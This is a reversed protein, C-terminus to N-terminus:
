TVKCQLCKKARKSCLLCINQHGCPLLRVIAPEDCLICIPQSSPVANSSGNECDVECKLNAISVTQAQPVHVISNAALSTREADMTGSVSGVVLERDGIHHSQPCREKSLRQHSDMTLTPDVTSLEM